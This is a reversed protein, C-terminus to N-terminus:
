VTEQETKPRAQPGWPFPFMPYKIFSNSKDAVGALATYWALFAALLGFLGGTKILGANNTGPSEQIFHGIALFLFALDLTLFLFFFIFSTKLTCALM